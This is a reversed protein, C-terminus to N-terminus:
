RPFGSMIGPIDSFSPRVIPLFVSAPVPRGLVGLFLSDAVGGFKIM